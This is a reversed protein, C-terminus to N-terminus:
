QTAPSTTPTEFILYPELNAVMAAGFGKLKLLDRASEFARKGPHRRVFDERYDIIAKARKEGLTPLASLAGVDAVNPDMRDALEDYRAGHPPQPETVDTPNLWHQVALVGLLAIAFGLVM